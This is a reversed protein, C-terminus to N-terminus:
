LKEFGLIAGNLLLLLLDHGAGARQYFKIKM